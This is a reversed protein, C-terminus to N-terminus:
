GRVKYGIEALLARLRELHDGQIELGETTLTGGAGCASKLRTLLAPLDNAEAALGRIVSVRKGQKRKELALRATQKAPPLLERAPAEPPCACESELQGCRACVPPRDWPTGAFLRM